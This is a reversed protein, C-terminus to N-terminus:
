ENNEEYFKYFADEYEKRKKTLNEQSATAFNASNNYAIEDVELQKKAKTRARIADQYKILSLEYKEKIEQLEEETM